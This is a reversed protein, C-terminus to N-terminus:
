QATHRNVLSELGLMMSKRRTKFIFRYCRRKWALITTEETKRKGLRFNRKLDRKLAYKPDKELLCRRM